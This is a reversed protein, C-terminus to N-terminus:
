REGGTAERLFRPFCEYISKPGHAILQRGALETQLFTIGQLVIDRSPDGISFRSSDGTVSFIVRWLGGGSMGQLNLPIPVNSELNLNVFLYDWGDRQIAKEVDTVYTLSGVAQADRRMMEIPTGIAIWFGADGYLDFGTDNMRRDVSYFVKHRAEVATKIEAPLPIFAIDPVAADSLESAVTRVPAYSSLLTRAIRYPHKPGLMLVLKKARSLRDWVHWATLIGATGNIVCLVGACPMGDTEEGDAVVMSVCHRRIHDRAEATIAAPLERVPVLTRSSPQERM